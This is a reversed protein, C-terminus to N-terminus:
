EKDYISRDKVFLCLFYLAKNKPVRYKFYIYKDIRIKPRESIIKIRYANERIEYIFKEKHM